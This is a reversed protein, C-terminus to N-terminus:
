EKVAGMSLGSVLRRQLFVVMLGIPIFAVTAAAALPGWEVSRSTIFGSVYVPLTKATQDSLVLPILFENWSLFSILIVTAAIGPLALPLVIRMLVVFQNGGDIRAAEELEVPIQRIFSVMLWIALPLNVAAYVFAIAIRNDYVGLEISLSYLPVVLVVIPMSRVIVIAAALPRRGVFRDHRAIGYAALFGISVCILTALLTIEVTAELAEIFNPDNFIHTYNSLTPSFSFIKPPIALADARSKLSTTVIWFLPFLAIVVALALAGYIVLSKRRSASKM